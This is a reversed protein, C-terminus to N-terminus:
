VKSGRGQELMKASTNLADQVYMISLYRGRAVDLTHNYDPFEDREHPIPTKYIDFRPAPAPFSGAEPTVVTALHKELRTSHIRLNHHLYEGAARDAHAQLFRLGDNPTGDEPTVVNDMQRLTQGAASASAPSSLPSYSLTSSSVVPSTLSSGTSVVRTVSNLAAGPRAPTRPVKQPSYVGAGARLAPTPPTTALPARDSADLKAVYQATLERAQKASLQGALIRDKMLQQHAKLAAARVLLAQRADHEELAARLHAPTDAWRHFALIRRVYQALLGADLEGRIPPRCRMGQVYRAEVPRPDYFANNIMPIHAQSAFIGEERKFSGLTFSCEEGRGM